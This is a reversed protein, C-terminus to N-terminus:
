RRTLEMDTGAEERAACAVLMGARTLARNRARSLRRKSGPAARERRISAALNGGTARRQLAARPAPPQRPVLGCRCAVMTARNTRATLVLRRCRGTARARSESRLLGVGRTRCRRMLKPSRSDDGKVIGIAYTILAPGKVPLELTALTRHTSKSTTTMPHRRQPRFFTMSDQLLLM